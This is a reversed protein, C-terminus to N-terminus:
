VLAKDGFAKKLATRAAQHTTGACIHNLQKMHPCGAIAKAASTTLENDSLHLMDVCAMAPWNVLSDIGAATFNNGMLYLIAPARDSFGKVLRATASEPLYNYDFDIYLLEAARPSATIASVDNLNLRCGHFDLLRLGGRPANELLKRDLGRVQNGELYLIALNKLHASSILESAGRGTIQNNELDLWRLNALGPMNALVRAASDDLGCGILRLERLETFGALEQVNNRTWNGDGQIQM